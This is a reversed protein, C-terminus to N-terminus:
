QFIRISENEGTCEDICQRTVIDYIYKGGNKDLIRVKTNSLNSRFMLHEKRRGLEKIIDLRPNYEILYDGYNERSKVLYIGELISGISKIGKIEKLLRGEHSIIRATKDSFECVMYEDLFVIRGSSKYICSLDKKSLVVAKTDALGIVKAVVIKSMVAITKYKCRKDLEMTEPNIYIEKHEKDMIHYLGDTYMVGSGYRKSVKSYIDERDITGL